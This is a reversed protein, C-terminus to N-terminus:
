LGSDWGHSFGKVIDLIGEKNVIGYQMISIQWRIYKEKFADHCKFFLCMWSGFLLRELIYEKTFGTDYIHMLSLKQACVAPALSLTLRSFSKEVQYCKKETQELVAKRTCFQVSREYSYLLCVNSLSM